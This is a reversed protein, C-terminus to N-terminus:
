KTYLLYFCSTSFFDRIYPTSSLISGLKMPRLGFKTEYHPNILWLQRHKIVLGAESTVREFKKITVKTSKISLLEDVTHRGEGFLNLIFRYFAKPLLHVFPLHSLFKSRCIQQHGGFPMQWAPFAMFIIGDPKMYEKVRALFEPKNDIHEFVDHCVIIDFKETMDDVKFIDKVIFSGCANNEAFLKRANEIKGSSIDIGLTDCGSESFPLLNGGDGCGIELVKMGQEIPHAQLIYPILYKRSTDALEHFYQDRNHHRQQM